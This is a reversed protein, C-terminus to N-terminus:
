RKQSTPHDFLRSAPDRPTASRNGDVGGDEGIAKGIRVFVRILEPHNGLGLGNPNENEDRPNLLAKLEPTGFAGIAKQALKVNEEFAAGGYEKDDQAEKGWTEIQQAYADHQRQTESARHEAFASALKNAQENTLNLERLIPDVKGAFEADLQMGEPMTFDYKEPPGAPKDGKSKDDADGKADGGDGKNSDDGADKEASKDGAEVGEATKSAGDGAGLITQTDKTGGAPADASAGNGTAANQTDANTTTDTTM